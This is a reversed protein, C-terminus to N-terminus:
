VPQCATLILHIDILLLKRTIFILDGNTDVGVIYSNATKQMTKHITGFKSSRWVTCAIDLDRPVLIFVLRTSM